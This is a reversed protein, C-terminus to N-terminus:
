SLDIIYLDKIENRLHAEIQILRKVENLLRKNDKKLEYIIKFDQLLLNFLYTIIILIICICLM